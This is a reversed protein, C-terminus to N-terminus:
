EAAKAKLEALEKRVRFLEDRYRTNFECHRVSDSHKGCMRLANSVRCFTECGPKACRQYGGCGKHEKCKEGVCRHDCLAGDKKRYQCYPM